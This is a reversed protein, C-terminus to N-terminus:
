PMAAPCLELARDLVDMVDSHTRKPHDNWQEIVGYENGIDLVGVVTDKAPGVPLNLSHAAKKLGGMLCYCSARVVDTRRGESDKYYSNQQWRAEDTLLVRTEKLVIQAHGSM